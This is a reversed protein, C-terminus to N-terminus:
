ELKLPTKTAELKVKIKPLNKTPGDDGQSEPSGAAVCRQATFIIKHPSDNEYSLFQRLKAWFRPIM